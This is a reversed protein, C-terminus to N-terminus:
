ALKYRTKNHFHKDKGTFFLLNFKIYYPHSSNLNFFLMDSNLSNINSNKKNIGRDSKETNGNLNSVNKLQSNTVSYISLFLLM